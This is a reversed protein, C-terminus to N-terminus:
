IYGDEEWTETRREVNTGKHGFKGLRKKFTDARKNKVKHNCQVAYPIRTGWGPITGPGGVNLAWLGLWQVM